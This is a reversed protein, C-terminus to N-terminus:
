APVRVRAQEVPAVALDHVDGPRQRAVVEPDMEKAAPGERGRREVVQESTVERRLLIQRSENELAPVVGQVTERQADLLQRALEEELHELPVLRAEVVVRLVANLRNQADAEREPALRQGEM